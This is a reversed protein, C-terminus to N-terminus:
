AASRPTARATDGLPSPRRDTWWRRTTQLSAVIAGGTLAAALVVFGFPTRRSAAEVGAELLTARPQSDEVAEVALATARDRDAPDVASISVVLLSRDVSVHATADIGAEVLLDGLAETGILGLARDM